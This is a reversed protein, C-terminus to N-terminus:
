KFQKIVHYLYIRLWAIFLVVFLMSVPRLVTTGQFLKFLQFLIVYIVFAYTYPVILLHLKSLGYGLGNALSYGIKHTQMFLAHVIVTFYSAAALLFLIAGQTLPSGKLALIIILFIPTWIIWWVANLGAWPKLFKKNFKQRSITTWTLGRFTTYAIFAFVLLLLAGFLISFFFQQLQAANQATLEPSTMAEKTLTTGAQAAAVKAQMRWQFFYAGGFVLLWYVADYLATIFLTKWETIAAILLDLMKQTYTASAAILIAGLIAVGIWGRTGTLYVLTAILLLLIGIIRPTGIKM